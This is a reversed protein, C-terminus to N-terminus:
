GVEVGGIMWKNMRRNVDLATDSETRLEIIFNPAVQPFGPGENALYANWRYYYFYLNFFIACFHLSDKYKIMNLGPFFYLLRILVYFILAVLVMLFKIPERCDVFFLLLFSMIDAFM